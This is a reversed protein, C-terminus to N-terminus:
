GVSMREFHMTKLYKRVELVCIHKDFPFTSQYDCKVIVTLDVDKSLIKVWKKKQKIKLMGYELGREIQSMKNTGIVIQPSWIVKQEDKTLQFKELDETIEETSDIFLQIRFDKWTIRQHMSITLTHANIEIVEIKSMNINILNKEIKGYPKKKIKSKCWGPICIMSNSLLLGGNSQGSEECTKRFTTINTTDITKLDQNCKNWFTNAKCLRLLFM